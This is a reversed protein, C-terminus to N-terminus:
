AAKHADTEVPLTFQFTAGRGPESMAWLRGGHSAIISRSIPLGMGTGQPKSTVFANFVRQLDEPHLGLGSDAISVLVQGNDDQQSTITLRGPTDMGKMAEMGNLMLNMFVQQLQVRDARVKPLNTDLNSDISILYRVAETRLLAIMEQIVENVDLLERQAVGKKFLLGIRNIIDSARTVDHMVRSAAERAEPVNPQDGLWELCTTADTVAAFMPQKIEHALSATLEGMTTVRNMHALDAQLQRLREREEDARKAETADMSVGIFQMPEGSGGFVRGVSHLYRVAGGPHVIRFEVDYDSKETIARDIEAHLKARDEPYVRELLEEWTPTGGRADFGYIRYWEESLYLANREPVEWVWSGVQALRQAQALYAENRRLEEEARKRDEIETSIGYWKLINGQEDRLPVARALFWRYQGDTSCRYRVENEFLEGTTLSTRWKELHRDIDEAHVAALWGSGFSGEETLGTYERWHRNVFEVSGDPLTTWASTPMTEIVDRLEKESRRVAEEARKHETIDMAIGVYEIGGAENVSCRAVDHIHKIVGDPFVLRFKAEWDRKEDVAAWVLAEINARDDPHIRDIFLSYSGDITPSDLGFIALCEESAHVEGTRVNWHWSGTHSLKEGETLYIQNRELRLKEDALRAKAEALQKNRQELEETRTCVQKELDDTLHRLETEARERADMQSKLTDISTVTQYATSAFHGLVSMLREDEADFKRRDTHMIAWITGVAKGAVYFPVLLCEEAEPMVPRLYPYRREFHRFLLTRNRDLVDGCPGFNRPTGGGIHPKWMGAIAPWYFTKGGDHATLLSLGSSDSDTVDLITDALTQLVTSPSNALANLLAVLARNEKEYNPPRSPRRHLEETCLIVELSAGSKPVSNEFHIDQGSKSQATM